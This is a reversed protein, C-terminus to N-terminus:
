ADIFTSHTRKDEEMTYHKAQLSDSINDYINGILRKM